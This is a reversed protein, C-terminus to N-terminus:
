EEGRLYCDMWQRTVASRLLRSLLIATGGALHLCFFEARGVSFMVFLFGACLTFCRHAPLAKVANQFSGRLSMGGYVSGDTLHCRVCRVVPRGYVVPGPLLQRLGERAKVMVFSQHEGAPHAAIGNIVPMVTDMLYIDFTSRVRLHELLIIGASFTDETLEMAPHRLCYEYLLTGRRRLQASEGGCLAIKIM